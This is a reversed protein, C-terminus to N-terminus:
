SLRASGMWGTLWCYLLIASSEFLALPQGGPGNPYLNAPIKNNTNLSLFEPTLQDDRDFRVLHAEYPLGTEAACDVGERRQAHAALAVALPRPAARALPPHHRLRDPRDHASTADPAIMM